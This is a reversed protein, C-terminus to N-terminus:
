DFCDLPSHRQFKLILQFKGYLFCISEKHFCGYVITNVTLGILGVKVIIFSSFSKEAVKPDPSVDQM